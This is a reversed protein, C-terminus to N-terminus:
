LFQFQRDPLITLLKRLYEATSYRQRMMNSWTVWLQMSRLEPPQKVTRDKVVLSVIGQLGDVAAQLRRCVQIAADSELQIGPIISFILLHAACEIRTVT